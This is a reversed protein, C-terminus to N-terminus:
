VRLVELLLDLGHASTVLLRRAQVRLLVRMRDARVLHGAQLRQLAHGGGQRRLGTLHFTPLELVLPMARRRQDRVEMDDGAVQQRGGQPRRTRFSVEDPVHGLRHRRVRLRRPDEDHVVQVDVGRRAQRPPYGVGTRDLLIQPFFPLRPTSRECSLRRVKKCSRPWRTRKTNRGFCVDQSFWISITKPTIMRLTMRRPFKVETVSRFSFSTRKM